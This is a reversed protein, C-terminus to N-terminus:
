LMKRSFNKSLNIKGGFFFLNEAINATGNLRFSILWFGTCPLASSRFLQICVVVPGM